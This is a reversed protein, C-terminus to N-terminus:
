RSGYDAPAGCTRRYDWEAPLPQALAAELVEAAVRHGLATLHGPEDLAIQDFALGRERYREGMELVAIGELATSSCFKGLLRTRHHYSQRDPHIVVLFRAGASRVVENMRRILEFTLAAAPPLNNMVASRRDMWVGPERPPRRLGLLGVLRNYLHSQDLLWQSLKRPPSLRVHADHKVLSRGDWSFHPKPQRADFLASPLANDTFDSFICFNLVVIDPAYRLGREELLILEQDTGYGGVSLNVVELRPGRSELLASFTEADEVGAGYGISDGVLVVRTRASTKRLPHERGRYGAANVNAMRGFDIGRFGKRLEWGLTESYVNSSEEAYLRYFYDPDFRRSAAELALLGGMFVLVTAVSIMWDAPRQVPGDPTM